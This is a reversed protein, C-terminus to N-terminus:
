IFIGAEPRARNQSLTKVSEIRYILWKRGAKRFAFNFEDVYFDKEGPVTVRGTLNVMATQRDPGLLVHADLLEVKMANFYQRAYMLRQSLHDRGSLMQLELARVGVRITIDDTFFGALEQTNGLKAMPGENSAFSALAAVRALNARIVKEPNPFFFQWLWLAAGFLAAAALLRWLRRKM